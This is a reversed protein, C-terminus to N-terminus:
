WGLAGGDARIVCNSLFDKDMSISPPNCEAALRSGRVRHAFDANQVKRRLQQVQKVVHIFDTDNTVLIATDYQESFAGFLVDAGLKM